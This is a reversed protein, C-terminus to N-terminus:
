ERGAALPLVAIVRASVVAPVDVLRQRLAARWRDRAAETERRHDANRVARRDFLSPQVDRHQRRPERRHGNADLRDRVAVWQDAQSEQATAAVAAEVVRPETALRRACNRWSDVDILRDTLSVAVPVLWTGRTGRGPRQQVVEVLVVPQASRAGHLPPVWVADVRDRAARRRLARSREVRVAELHLARQDVGRAEPGPSELGTPDQPEAPLDLVSATVTREIEADALRLAQEARSARQRVHAVVTEEYSSAATLHVAHVIRRQGIRHVRGIRQALRLPSWPWELMVVLRAGHQLNLGEGAVDTTLLVRTRGESFSTLRRQREALDLEGHLFAVPAVRELALRCAELTDRFESFVIAPEGVRHLFRILRELKSPRHEARRAREILKTVIQKEAQRDPLGPCAVSSTDGDEPDVEEWPLPLLRASDADDRQDIWALRRELTLRAARPSSTARRALVSAFLRAGSDAPAQRCILRVYDLVGAQLDSEPRSPRVRWTCSRRAVLVSVDSADRRFVRIPTSRDDDGIDLLTRYAAVDGSHPTASVLVVWAAQRALRSVIAHRDTAPTAHHAEDVILLDIPAQEVAARIEARKVLDISSVVIAARGWPNRGAAADHGLDLLAQPDVVLAPLAFRSRLEDVWQLRVAAPALVMARDVLGRARLEALVLGAQVTKGLGVADALLLRTAGERLVALAPALQWPWLEM